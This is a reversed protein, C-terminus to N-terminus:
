RTSGGTPATTTTTSSTTRRISSCSGCNSKQARASTFKSSFPLSLPGEDLFGIENRLSSRQTKVGGLRGVPSTGPPDYTYCDILTTRDHWASKTLRFKIEENDKRLYYSQSPCTPYTLLYSRYCRSTILGIFWISFLQIWPFRPPM